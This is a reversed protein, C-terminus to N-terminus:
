KKVKSQNYSIATRVLTKLSGEEIHDGEHIDIARWKNGELEANFLKDPDSLAASGVALADICAGRACVKLGNAEAKASRAVASLDLRGKEWRSFPAAPLISATWPTRCNGGDGTGTKLLTLGRAARGRKVL